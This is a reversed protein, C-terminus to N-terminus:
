YKHHHYKESKILSLLDNIFQSMSETGIERKVTNKHGENWKMRCLMVIVKVCWMNDPSIGRPWRRDRIIVKPTPLVKARILNYEKENSPSLYTEIWLWAVLHTVPSSISRTRFEWDRSCYAIANHFELRYSHTDNSCLDKSNEGMMLSFDFMYLLGASLKPNFKQSIWDEWVYRDLQCTVSIEQVQM